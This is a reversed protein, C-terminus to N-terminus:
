ADPAEERSTVIPTRRSPLVLRGCRACDGRDDWLPDRCDCARPFVRAARLPHLDYGTRPPLTPATM